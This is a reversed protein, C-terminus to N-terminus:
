GCCYQTISDIPSSRHRSFALLDEIATSDMDELLAFLRFKQGRPRNGVDLLRRVRDAFTLEGM